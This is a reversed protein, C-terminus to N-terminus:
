HHILLSTAQLNTLPLQNSSKFYKSPICNIKCSLKHDTQSSHANASPNVTPQIIQQSSSHNQQFAAIISAGEVKFNELLFPKSLKFMIICLKSDISEEKM